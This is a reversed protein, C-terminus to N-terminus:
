QWIDEHKPKTSTTQMASIFYQLPTPRSVREMGDTVMEHDIANVYQYRENILSFIDDSSSHKDFFHQLELKITLVDGNVGTHRARFPYQNLIEGLQTRVEKKSSPMCPKFWTGHKYCNQLIEFIQKSKESETLNKQKLPIDTDFGILGCDEFVADDCLENALTIENYDNSIFYALFKGMGNNYYKDSCVGMSEYYDCVARDLNASPTGTCQQMLESSQRMM